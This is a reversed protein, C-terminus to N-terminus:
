RKRRHPRRRSSPEAPMEKAIKLGSFVVYRHYCSHCRCLPVKLRVLYNEFGSRPHSVYVTASDCKPCPGGRPAIDAPPKESPQGFSAPGLPVVPSAAAEAQFEPAPLPHPEPSVGPAAEAEPAAEDRQPAPPAPAVLFPAAAKAAPADGTDKMKLLVTLLRLETLVQQMTPQISGAYCNGAIQLASARLGALGTRPGAARPLVPMEGAPPLSGTLMQFLLAGFARIDREIDAPERSRAPRLEAGRETMTINAATLSGHARGQGHIERLSTAIENACQLATALSM